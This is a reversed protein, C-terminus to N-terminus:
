KGPKIITGKNNEKIRKYKHNPSLAQAIAVLGLAHPMGTTLGASGDNFGAKKLGTQCATACSSSIVDYPQKLVEKEGEINKKDQEKTAPIIYGESYEREGTKKNIVPNLDSNMFDKPTKFSGVGVQEGPAQDNPGKMGSSENTGNKSYLRYIGDEGQILQAMHGEGAAGHPANLVM